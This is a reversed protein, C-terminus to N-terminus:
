AARAPTEPYSSTVGDVSCSSELGYSLVHCEIMHSMLDCETASEFGCTCVFM